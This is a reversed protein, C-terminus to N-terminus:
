KKKTIKVLSRVDHDIQNKFESTLTSVGCASVRKGYTLVYEATGDPATTFYQRLYLPLTVAFGKDRLFRLEPNVYPDPIEAATVCQERFNFNIKGLKAPTLNNYDLGGSGDTHTEAHVLIVAEDKAFAALSVNFQKDAYIPQHHFEGLFKFSKNVKLKLSVKHTSRLTNGRADLYDFKESQAPKATLISDNTQALLEHVFIFVILALLVFIKKL